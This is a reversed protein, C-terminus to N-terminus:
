IESRQYFYPYYPKFGYIFGWLIVIISFVVTMILFLIVLSNKKLSIGQKKSIVILIAAVIPNLLLFLFACQGELYAFSTAIGLGIGFIYNINQEKRTLKPEMNSSKLGEGLNFTHLLCNEVFIIFFGLTILHHGIFEDLYYIAYYFDTTSYEAIVQSNLRNMTVHTINGYNFLVIALLYIIYAFVIKNESIGRERFKNLIRRILIFTFITFIPGIFVLDLLDKLSLQYTVWKTQESIYFTIEIPPNSLRTLYGLGFSIGYAIIILFSHKFSDSQKKWFRMMLM